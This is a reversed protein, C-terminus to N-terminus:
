AGPLIGRLWDQWGGQTVTGEGTNVAARAQLADAYREFVRAREAQLRYAVFTTFMEPDAANKARVRGIYWATEDGSPASVLELREGATARSAAEVMALPPQGIGGEYRSPAVESLIQLELGLEVLADVPPDDIWQEAIARAREEAVADRYLAAAIEDRVEDLPVTREPQRGTVRYLSLRDGEDVVQSLGGEPVESIADRVGATLAALRREGMDGGAAVTGPDESHRRALEGFDAGGIAQARIADIRGQIAERDELGVNLRIVQLGVKAPLQYRVPRLQEYREAVAGQNAAAWSRILAPDLLSDPLDGPDVAVYEVDVTAMIEEYEKRAASEDIAVGLTVAARLKDRLLERRISEEHDTRSRGSSKIAEKWLAIEFKGDDDHYRPDAKIVRSIEEASVQFGLRRAESALVVDQAFQQKVLNMLEREREETMDSDPGQSLAKAMHYRPGFESMLIRQGDVELAVNVQEGQPLAFWGVFAVVILILVIQMPTSDTSGRMKEMISM